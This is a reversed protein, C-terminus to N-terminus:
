KSEILSMIKSVQDAGLRLVGPWGENRYIDLLEREDSKMDGPAAIGKQDDTLGLLYDSSVSLKEAIIRLNESTADNIGNEYRNIQNPSFGCELSLQQQSFGAKERVQKLRHRLV